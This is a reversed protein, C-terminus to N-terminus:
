WSLVRKQSSSNGWLAGFVIDFSSSCRMSVNNQTGKDQTNFDGKKLLINLLFDCTQLQDYEALFVSVQRLYAVEVSVCLSGM